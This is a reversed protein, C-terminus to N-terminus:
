KGDKRHHRGSAQITEPANAQARRDQAAQNRQRQAQAAREFDAVRDATSGM